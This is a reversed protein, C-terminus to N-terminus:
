GRPSSFPSADSRRRLVPFKFGKDPDASGDEYKNVLRYALWFGLVGFVIGGIGQGILVGPAGGLDAGIIVFPIVGITNKGWNLVTSLLPRRLNNFAANSIFLTGNFIFLPAVAAAFWFILNRGEETLQFQDSIFGNLLFLLIWAALTYLATFQVAKILTGRVRGFQKAGFNQGIIPGVAGSLAFIVCFALPTMRGAVAYGAVVSDGFESITRTVVSNGIPTAVNTLMAPAAIAIIPKLDSVLRRVGIRAFGGYHKFIPYLATAAMAFRAAVSAYAAGDLGLGFGFILIPDLIANVAGASLTVTMARRADGHARLLGSAMMGLAAIPMSLVVIRLYRVALEATEGRAGIWDVLTPAYTWFLTAVVLSIALGFIIVSSTIMRAEDMVGQGIRQAALASAAITLGISVSFTFFLLTGAFGVAAALEAEGLMSIFLLDVFDVLFVSVLGISASASMVIIHRMLNGELFIAQKAAM